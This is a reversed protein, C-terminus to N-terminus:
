TLAKLHGVLHYAFQVVMAPLCTAENLFIALTIFVVVNQVCQSDLIFCVVKQYFTTQKMKYLKRLVQIKVMDLFIPGGNKGVKDVNDKQVGYKGGFGKAADTQSHHKALDEKYTYDM